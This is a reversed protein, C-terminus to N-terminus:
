AGETTATTTPVAPCEPPASVSWGRERMIQAMAYLTYHPVDRDAVGVLFGCEPCCGAPVLEGAQIRESIHRVHHLGNLEDMTGTWDCEECEYVTPESSDQAPASPPITSVHGMVLSFLENYDDGTPCREAANIKEDLAQVRKELHELPSAM